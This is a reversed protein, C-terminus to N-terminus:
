PTTTPTLQDRVEGTPCATTTLEIYAQGAKMATVFADFNAPAPAPPSAPYTAATFTRNVPATPNVGLDYITTAGATGAAGVRIRGGTAVNGGSLGTWSLNTITITEEDGSISATGSATAGAAGGACPPAAEARTMAITFNTANPVVPDDDDDDCATAFLAAFLLAAAPLRYSYM